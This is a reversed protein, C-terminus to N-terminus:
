DALANEKVITAREGYWEHQPKYDIRSKGAEYEPTRATIHLIVLPEDGAAKFWYPTGAPISIMEHKALHAVFVDDDTGWFEAEGGLVLWASDTGPHAHLNTEGDKPAIVQVGVGLIDTRTLSNTTKGREPVPAIVKAVKFPGPIEVATM